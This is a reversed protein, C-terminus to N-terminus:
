TSADNIVELIEKESIDFLALRSKLTKGNVYGLHLKDSVLDRLQKSNEHGILGCSYLFHTSIPKHSNKVVQMHNLAKLIDDKDAHEIGIKKKNKSLALEQKLFVHHVNKAHKSVIQRIRQGAYDPDTFVIMDHTDSLKQILLITEESIESGNTIIVDVNGLIEILKAKDHQGEVIFVQQKM